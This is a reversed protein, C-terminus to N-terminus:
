PATESRAPPDIRFLTVARRGTATTWLRTAYPALSAVLSGHYTDDNVTVGTTALWMRKAPAADIKKRVVTVPFNGLMLYYAVPPSTSTLVVADRPLERRIRDAAERASDDTHWPSASIGANWLPVAGSKAAYASILALVGLGALPFWSRPAETTDWSQALLAGVALAAMVVLPLVLRDYARYRPASGMWIVLSSLVIYGGLRGGNWLARGALPAALFLTRTLGLPVAALTLVSAFIAARRPLHRSPSCGLATLTAAVIVLARGVNDWGALIRWYDAIAPLYGDSLFTRMTAIYAPLGGGFLVLLFGPVYISGALLSLIALSRVRTLLVGKERSQVYDALSALALVVIAFWGHVKTEWAIGVTCGAVLTDALSGSRLAREGALLALLFWFTFCADTMVERSFRIHLDSLAVLSAAFAGARPGFWLSGAVGTLLVTGVGALLSILLLSRHGPLGTLATLIAGSGYYGPPAQFQIGPYPRQLRSLSQASAAYAGQDFGAIEIRDWHWLRIGLAALAILVLTKLPVRTPTHSSTPTTAPM